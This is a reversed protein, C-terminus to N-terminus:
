KNQKAPDKYQSSPVLELTDPKYAVKLKPM